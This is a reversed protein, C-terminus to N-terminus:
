EARVVSISDEQVDIALGKRKQEEIFYRLADSAEYVMAFDVCAGRDANLYSTIRIKGSKKSDIVKKLDEIIKTEVEKSILENEM